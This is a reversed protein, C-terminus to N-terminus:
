RESHCTFQRERQGPTCKTTCQSHRWCSTISGKYYTSYAGRTHERPGRTIESKGTDFVREEGAIPGVLGKETSPMEAGSFDFYTLLSSSHPLAETCMGQRNRELFNRRKEEETEPKRQGGKKGNGQTTSLDPPSGASEEDEEEEEDEEVSISDGRKPRGNPVGRMRKPPAPKPHHPPPSASVDYSKRKTGRKNAANSPPADDDGDSRNARQAEERKTLEQHAQSLLFLGNAATNPTNNTTNLYRSDSSQTSTGNSYNQPRQEYSSPPIHSVSLPHPGSSNTGNAVAASSALVGTIANLTNPTITAGGSVSSSMM